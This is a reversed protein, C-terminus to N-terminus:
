MTRRIRQIINTTAGGSLDSNAPQWAGAYDPVGARNPYAARLGAALSSPEWDAITDDSPFITFPNSISSNDAYGQAINTGSFATAANYCRNHAFIGQESSSGLRFAIDGSNANAFCVLNGVVLYNEDNGSGLCQIGTRGTGSGAEIIITNFSASQFDNDLFILRRASVTNAGECLIRNHHAYNPGYIANVLASASDGIELYNGVAIVAADIMRTVGSENCVLKCDLVHDFSYVMSTTGSTGANYIYCGNVVCRINGAGGGELAPGTTNHLTLNVFSVNTSGTWISTNANGNFGASSGEAGCFELQGSTWSNTSATSSLPTSATLTELQNGSMIVQTNTGKTETAMLHEVTQYPSGSSGDGTSDSGNEHDVYWIDDFNGGTEPSTAM